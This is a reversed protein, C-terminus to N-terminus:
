GKRLAPEVDQYLSYSEGNIDMFARLRREGRGDAVIWDRGHQAAGLLAGPDLPPGDAEGAGFVRMLALPGAMLAVTDPTADDVPVLRPNPPLVLRIRDGERWVRSVEAFAGARAPVAPEGNVRLSAGRAWAPVRLFISFRGAAGAEVRLDITDAYPYDTAVSLRRAAGQADWAVEGPLYLNVWLGRADTFAMNLRHDAAVLPLTGSCCPWLDPHTGKAAHRSYDSYYFAHGDPQVPTAGLVTNYLVRELSDGYRPNRTIRLLYRTLKFHAYSGCPTEFSRRMGVLSRALADGDPEVFHEDPGWGGTAFSQAEVFALGNSAANLHAQSGLELYVRAASCLCNVHSYAHKGPLANEGRALPLYFDDYLLRQALSLHRRDGTTRWARLQHEPLTYSEDWAHQTFDTGQIFNTEVRPQAKPPMYPLALDTTRALLRLATPDGAFDHADLLGQVLKDYTYAPFRNNKYFGGNDLTEGYLGVLRRVKARAAPEGTVAHLRSLAAVWQGFTAGPAFAWTGYWGGLDPGPAPLGARERFPKLLSDEDLGMLLRLNEPAQAAAPGGTLSVKSHALEELLPPSTQASAAAPAAAAASAAAAGLMLDRRSPSGAESGGRTM